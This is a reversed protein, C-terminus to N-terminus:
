LPLGVIASKRGRLYAVEQMDIPGIIFGTFFPQYTYTVLVAVVGEGPGGLDELGAEFGDPVGVGSTDQWVIQPDGQEDFEYSTVTYEYTDLTYPAMTVQGALIAEERQAETPNAERTVLDATIQAAAIVKQNSLLGNGIDVMSVLMSILTPFLLAAEVAAM